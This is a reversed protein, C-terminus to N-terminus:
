FASRCCQSPRSSEPWSPTSDRTSLRSAITTL